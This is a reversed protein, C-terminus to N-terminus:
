SVAKDEDEEPLATSYSQDSQWKRITERVHSIDEPLVVIPHNSSGSGPGVGSKLYRRGANSRRLLIGLHYLLQIQDFVTQLLRSVLRDGDGGSSNSSSSDSDDSIADGGQQDHDEPNDLINQVLALQKNLTELIGTLQHRVEPKDRLREGLSSRARDPIEARFDHAWVKLRAYRDLAREILKPDLSPRPTSLAFLLHKFGQTCKGFLTELDPMGPEESPPNIDAM